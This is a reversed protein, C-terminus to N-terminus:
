IDSFTGRRANKKTCHTTLRNVSLKVGRQGTQLPSVQTALPTRRTSCIPEIQSSDPLSRENWALPKNYVCSRAPHSFKGRCGKMDEGRTVNIRSLEVSLAIDGGAGGDLGCRKRKPSVSQALSREKPRCKRRTDYWLPIHLPLPPRASISQAISLPPPPLSPM